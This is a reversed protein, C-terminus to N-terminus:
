IALNEVPGQVVFIQAPLDQLFETPRETVQGRRALRDDMPAIAVLAVQEAPRHAGHVPNIPGIAM